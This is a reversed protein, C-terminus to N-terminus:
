RRTIFYTLFTVDVKYDTDHCIKKEAYLNIRYMFKPHVNIWFKFPEYGSFGFKTATIKKIKNNELTIYIEKPCGWDFLNFSWFIYDEIEYNKIETSYRSKSIEEKIKNVCVYYNQNYSPRLYTNVVSYLYLAAFSNREKLKDITVPYECVSSILTSYVISADRNAFKIIKELSFLNITNLVIAIFVILTKM